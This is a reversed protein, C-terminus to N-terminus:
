KVAALAEHYKDMLAKVNAPSAERRGEIVDMWYDPSDMGIDEVAITTNKYYKLFIFIRIAILM